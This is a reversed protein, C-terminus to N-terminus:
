LASFIHNGDEVVQQSSLNPRSGGCNFVNNGFLLNQKIKHLPIYVHFFHLVIINPIFHPNHFIRIYILTTVLHLFIYCQNVHIHPKRKM